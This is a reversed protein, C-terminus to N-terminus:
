SINEKIKSIVNFFTDLEEETIGQTLAKEMEDISLIAEQHLLLAKETLVLKKLRADGVVPERKILNEREMIQLIGTVTSRRINFEKEIDKQFVDGTNETLFLVIGHQMVTTHNPRFVTEFYRRIENSVSKLAFGITRHKDM